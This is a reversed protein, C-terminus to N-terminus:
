NLAEFETPQAILFILKKVKTDASLYIMSEILHMLNDVVSNLVMEKQTTEHVEEVWHRELRRHENIFFM